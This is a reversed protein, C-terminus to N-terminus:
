GRNKDAGRWGTTKPYIGTNQCFENDGAEESVVIPTQITLVINVSGQRFKSFTLLRNNTEIKIAKIKKGM